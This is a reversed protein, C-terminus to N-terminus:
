GKSYNYLAPNIKSTCSLKYPYYQTGDKSYKYRIVYIDKIVNNSYRFVFGISKKNQTLIASSFGSEKWRRNKAEFRTSNFARRLTDVSYRFKDTKLNTQSSIVNPVKKLENFLIYIFKPNSIVFKEKFLSPPVFLQKKFQPISFIADVVGTDGKKLKKDVFYKGVGFALDGLMYGADLVTLDSM